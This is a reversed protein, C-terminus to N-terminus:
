LTIIEPLKLGLLDFNLKGVNEYELKFVNDYLTLVKNLTYDYTKMICDGKDNIVKGIVQSRVHSFSTSVQSVGVKFQFFQEQPREKELFVEGGNPLTLYLKKVRDTDVEVWDAWEESVTVGDTYQVKWLTRQNKQIYINAV